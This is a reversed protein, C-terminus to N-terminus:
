EIANRGGLEKYRLDRYPYYEFDGNFSISGIFHDAVVVYYKKDILEDVKKEQEADIESGVKKGLEEIEHEMQRDLEYYKRADYAWVNCSRKCVKGKIEGLIREINEKAFDNTRILLYYNEVAPYHNIGLIQYSYASLNIKRVEGKKTPELPKNVWHNNVDALLKKAETEQPFGKHKDLLEELITKAGFYKNAAIHSKAEELLRLPNRDRSTSTVTDTPQDPSSKTKVMDSLGRIVIVGLV